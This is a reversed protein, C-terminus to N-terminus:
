VRLNGDMQICVFELNHVVGEWCEKKLDANGNSSRRM